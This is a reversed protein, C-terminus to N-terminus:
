QQQQQQLQQKCHTRCNQVAQDTAPLLPFPTRSQAAVDKIKGTLVKVPDAPSLFCRHLSLQVEWCYLGGWFVCSAGM